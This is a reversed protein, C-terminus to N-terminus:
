ILSSPPQKCGDQNDAAMPDVFQQTEQAEEKCFKKMDKADMYMGGLGIWPPNMYCPTVWFDGKLRQPAHIKCDYVKKKGCYALPVKTGSMTTIQCSMYPLQYFNYTGSTHNQLDPPGFDSSASTCSSDDDSLYEDPESLNDSEYWWQLVM